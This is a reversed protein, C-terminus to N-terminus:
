VAVCGSPLTRYSCRVQLVLVQGLADEALPAGLDALAGGVGGVEGEGALDTGGLAASLIDAGRGVTAVVAVAVVDAPAAGAVAGLGATVDVSEVSVFKFCRDALSQDLKVGRAVVEDGGRGGLELGGVGCCGGTVLVLEGANGGDISVEGRELLSGQIVLVLVDPRPERLELGLGPL